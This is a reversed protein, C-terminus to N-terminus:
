FELNSIITCTLILFCLAFFISFPLSFVFPFSLLFCLLPTFIFYTPCLLSLSPTFPSLYTSSLILPQVFCASFITRTTAFTGFSFHLNYVCRSAFQVASSCALGRNSFFILWSRFRCLNRRTSTYIQLWDEKLHYFSYSRFYIILCWQMVLALTQKFHYFYSPCNFHRNQWIKIAIHFKIFNNASSYFVGILIMKRILM